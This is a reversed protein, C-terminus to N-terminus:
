RRFGTRLLSAVIRSWHGRTDAILRKARPRLSPDYLARWAERWQGSKRVFQRWQDALLRRASWVEVPIETLDFALCAAFRKHGDAVYFTSGARFVAIPPFCDGRHMAARYEEVREPVHSVELLDVVRERPVRVTGAEAAFCQPATVGGRAVM